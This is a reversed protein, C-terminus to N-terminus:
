PNAVLYDSDKLDQLSLDKRQLIRYSKQVELWGYKELTDKSIFFVSLTDAPLKRFYQSWTYKTTYEDAKNSALTAWNSNTSDPLRVDPYFESICYVIPMSSNNEITFFYRITAGLPPNCASLINLALGLWLKKKM